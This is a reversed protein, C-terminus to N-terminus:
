FVAPPPLTYGLGGWGRPKSPHHLTGRGRVLAWFDKKKKWPGFFYRDSNKEFSTKDLFFKGMKASDKNTKKGPIKVQLSWSIGSLPPCRHLHLPVVQEGENKPLYGKFALIGGGDWWAKGKRLQPPTPIGRGCPHDSASM